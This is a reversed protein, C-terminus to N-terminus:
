GSKERARRRMIVVAIIGVAVLGLAIRTNRAKKAIDSPGEMNPDTLEGPMPPLPPLEVPIQQKRKLEYAAAADNLQQQGAHPICPWVRAKAPDINPVMPHMANRGGQIWTGSALLAAGAITGVGPITQLLVGTVTRWNAKCWAWDSWWFEGRQWRELDSQDVAGLGSCGCDSSFSQAPRLIVAAPRKM